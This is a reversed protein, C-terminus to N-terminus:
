LHADSSIWFAALMSATPCMALRGKCTAAAAPCARTLLPRTAVQPHVRAVRQCHTCHAAAQVGRSGHTHAFHAGHSAGCTTARSSVLPALRCYLFWNPLVAMLTAVVGFHM